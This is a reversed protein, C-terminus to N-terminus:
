MLFICLLVIAIGIAWSIWLTKIAAQIETIGLKRKGDPNVFPFDQMQGEYSRPGSLAVGITQAMAAEPWGANPSRHLKADQRIATLSIDHPSVAAILLATLRAPIWNLVDDFRAAAWGFERYKNTRYGIMSDATNTIKYLLFGPLGGILFWFAPAIVGDSFNEAGSEIAARAIQSDDMDQTDRGVIMAVSARGDKTSRGLAVAVDNVHDILSRHALLVAVVIVDVIVYPVAQLLYGLLVAGISLMALCIIGKAYKHTGTNFRKDAIGILRGMLVAPHPLRSWIQKPEGFIADLGAGIALILPTM